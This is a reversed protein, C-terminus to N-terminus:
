RLLPTPPPAETTKSSHRYVHLIKPIHVSKLGEIACLKSAYAWDEGYNSPPFGSLIALTRRWACVHWANRKFRGGPNFPENPNGLGFETVGQKDDIYSLQEFTIVDPNSKASEVIASVYDSDIWDDDDVFAVYKGRAMRLLADRKEGITRRKNDIFVLHEVPVNGIQLALEHQLQEVQALRSPVAPTLISLIM